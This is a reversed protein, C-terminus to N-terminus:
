SNRSSNQFIRWHHLVFILSQLKHALLFKLNSLLLQQKLLQLFMALQHLRACILQNFSVISNILFNTFNIATLLVIGIAVAASDRIKEQPM